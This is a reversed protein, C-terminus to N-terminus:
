NQFPLHRVDKKIATLILPTLGTTLEMGYKKVILVSKQFELTFKKKTLPYVTVHAIHKEVIVNINTTTLRWIKRQFIFKRAIQYKM